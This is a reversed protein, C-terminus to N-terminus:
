NKSKRVTKLNLLNMPNTRLGKIQHGVLRVVEDYFLTIVPADEVVLQDMRQYLKRKHYSDNEILAKEFLSDFEANRYHFFNVGQPCFNKSYFLSMFNEEDAYDAVWSKKFMLYECGAVAQRLVTTKEVSIQTKINNEALQSQIFEVQEKYNETTHLTIEPLGKGNPYGADRLLEATKNPQYHYGKVLISDYSKLGPPIFGAHAAKGINNRLYKVLKDRDFGYNIAQRLARLRLPSNQVMPLNEDVVIGIYDTKLFTEKQLYFKKKYFERLNGEKDLVENTNFADAGSLMDFKANLLEMFATERDKIFSVTVADLYPLAVNGTDREFYNQNKLLILKTGEQWSKFVFPGTGVPNRRFDQKYYEIAELPIVSFYKMTLINVFASFPTKLCIILTSDNLADFGKYNSREGRDINELLSGASSVKSDYLRNFSFVFDGATVKRGKANEFCPNDHFYIDQRLSFTYRLGDPSISYGTAICPIVNLSDDMQVLGNFLQNVPAINEFNSAAAPDLSSVGNMENYNFVTRTDEDSESRCSMLLSLVVLLLAKVFSQMFLSAEYFKPKARVVASM